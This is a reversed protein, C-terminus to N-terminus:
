QHVGWAEAMNQARLRRGGDEQIARQEVVLDAPRAVGIRATQLQSEYEIFHLQQM